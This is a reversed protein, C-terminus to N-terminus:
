ATNGTTFVYHSKWATISMVMIHRYVHLRELGASANICNNFLSKFTFSSLDSMAWAVDTCNSQFFSCTTVLPPLHHCTSGTSDKRQLRWCQLSFTYANRVCSAFSNRFVNVVLGTQTIQIIRVDIVPLSTKISRFQKVAWHKISCPHIHQNTHCWESRSM